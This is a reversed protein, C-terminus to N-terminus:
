GKRKRVEEDGLIAMTKKKDEELQAALEEIREFKKEERIREIFTIKVDQGYIDGHFDFIHVEITKEPFGNNVTPRIGINLMGGYDKGSLLVKVAYVGDAPILKHEDDPRINATPFGMSRGIRKGGVIRGIIFYHYGLFREAGAVDGQWLMDRILTSSVTQGDIKRAKVKVVRFGLERGMASVREFDGQRDHGFVHDFGMVLVEVGIKEVLLQEVFTRADMKQIDATFELILLHDIGCEELLEQKGQITSLYKLKAPQHNLVIRPHPWFTIVLTEGGARRAEEKMRDFLYRHGVHVGDFVGISVVPKRVRIEELSHYVVM